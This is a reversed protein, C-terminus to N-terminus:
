YDLWCFLHWGDNALALFSYRQESFKKLTYIEYPFKKLVVTSQTRSTFDLVVIEREKKKITSICLFQQNGAFIYDSLVPGYLSVTMKAFANGKRSNLDFLYYCFENTEKITYNTLIGLPPSYITYYFNNGANKPLTIHGIFIKKEFDFIKLGEMPSDIYLLKDAIDYYYQNVKHKLEPVEEWLYNDLNLLYYNANFRSPSNDYVLLHITNTTYDYLFEKMLNTGSSFGYELNNKKPFKIYRYKSTRLDFDVLKTGGAYFVVRNKNIVVYEGVWGKWLPIANINEHKLKEFLTSKTECNVLFAILSVYFLFATNIKVMM